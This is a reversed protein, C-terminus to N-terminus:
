HPAQPLLRVMTPNFRTTTPGALGNQKPLLRVMTPNFSPILGELREAGEM